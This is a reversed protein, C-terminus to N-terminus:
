AIMEELKSLQDLFGKVEKDHLDRLCDAVEKPTDRMQCSNMKAKTGVQLNEAKTEFRKLTKWRQRLSSYLQMISIGDFGLVIALSSLQGFLGIALAFLSVIIILIPVLIDWVSVVQKLTIKYRDTLLKLSNKILHLREIIVSQLDGITEHEEIHMMRQHEMQEIKSVVKSSIEAVLKPGPIVGFPTVMLLSSEAEGIVKDIISIKRAPAPTILKEVKQGVKYLGIGTHEAWEQWVRLQADTKINEEGIAVSLLDNAGLFSTIKALQTEIQALRIGSRMMVEFYHKQEGKHAILDVRVSLPEIPPETQLSPTPPPSEPGRMLVEVQFNEYDQERLYSKLTELAERETVM